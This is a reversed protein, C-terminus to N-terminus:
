KSKSKSKSKEKDKEKVKDKDKDAEAKKAAKAEAKAKKEKADKEDLAEEEDALVKVESQVSVTEEAHDGHRPPKNEAAEELPERVTEVTDPSLMKNLERQLLVVVTYRNVVERCFQLLALYLESRHLPMNYLDIEKMLELQFLNFEELNTNSLLLLVDESAFGSMICSDLTRHLKILDSVSKLLNDRLVGKFVSHSNAVHQEAQNVVNRLMHAVDKMNSFTRYYYNRADYDADGDEDHIIMLYYKGRLKTIRDLLDIAKRRNKQLKKLDEKLLAKTTSSFIVVTNRLLKSILKNLTIRLEEKSLNEGLEFRDDVKVKKRTPLNSKIVIAVVVIALGIMYYKGLWMCTFVVIGCATFSTLATIFWGGIVAFVGSIRYVASERDWAGDALSSGMGVMFTVYTTSLPLKWSTALAILVSALVLNVSARLQDFPLAVEGKKRTPKVMRSDIASQISQPLFQEIVRNVTLASRVILRSSSSSGFQEKESRESSSLNIATQVVRRAKPSFWLTLVMILGFTILYTTPTQVSEKLGEMTMTAPTLAANAAYATDAIDTSQLAALPVGVFNVLDNGAFAFALSFTGALIILRLVNFNSTWIFFSFFFSCVFFTTLMIPLTNVDLWALLEPTMFSAGRAGKIVLFYLIATICFGGYIGGFARYVKGLNFSFILRIVWQIIAGFTFAIIVSLLIGIIIVLARENSIYAGIGGLSGTAASLKYGAAVVAGGLLEFVVSVTTSTPLGLTNFINLVIVDTIMVSFFITMVDQYTFMNPNFIGSRAIEMMGSSFTCGLLVGAGAVLMIRNYSAAKCGLASSLFNVADNSVGVFLDFAALIMLFITVGFLFGDM